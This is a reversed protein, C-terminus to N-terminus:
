RSCTRQANSVSDRVTRRWRSSKSGDAYRPGRIGEARRSESAATGSSSVCCSSSTSPKTLGAVAGLRAAQHAADGLASCVITPITALDPCGRRAARFQWGDLVPMMLDLVILDPRLGARLMQIAQYGDAATASPYGAYELLVTMAERVDGDDEVILVSRRLGGSM